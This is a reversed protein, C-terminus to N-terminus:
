SIFDHDRMYTLKKFDINMELAELLVIFLRKGQALSDKLNPTMSFDSIVPVFNKNNM